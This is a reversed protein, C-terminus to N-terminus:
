KGGAPKEVYSIFVSGGSAFLNTSDNMGYYYHEGTEFNYLLTNYRDYGVIVAPTGDPNRAIVARDESIQYLVEELTCGTLNMVDGSEGLGDKLAQEDMTGSLFVAPIDENILENETQNNGREWIYQQRTNLVVGVQADADMIAQAPSSYIGQLKGKAYVYYMPLNDQKEVTIELTHDTGTELIKSRSILPQRNSIVEPMVLTVVMGRRTTNSARSIVTNEGDKQNNMINDNTTQEYGNETRIVRCLEILGEQIHIEYVWIGDNKYEKILNGDMDEIVISSMAFTTNGAVDTSIDGDAAIGYIFDTNVFGLAQIKNGEGAAIKRMSGTELDMVSVTASGNRVMEGMWAIQSQDDSVLFCDPNIRTLVIDYTKETLSVRYVMQELYLYLSGSRNVYSLKNLDEQLYEFSSSCPLFLQEEVTNRESSFHLVSVGVKGEHIDKNMYGYVVFDIDGSEEVRVIKIGRDSFNDRNEGKGSGLMSYVQVLKDANSNYSWLEGAQEFAVITNSDNALFEMDKDAVGVEIGKTTISAPTATYIQQTNREFDLLMIRSQYYRMRFFDTVYYFEADGNDDKATIMYKLVVSGTTENIEKITAVAKRYISPSLEGWSIQELSSTIDINTFNTNVAYDSPELYLNLNSAAEKNMCLEYFDYAFELYQQTNLSSRQVVRTYYNVDQKPLHVTFKLGYEQNMLIPQQLSFTATQYEGDEKFNGVKANEVVTGDQLNTVEYTVSTIKNGYDQYSVSIQRDTTLPVLGDRLSNQNMEQTYGYMQNIKYGDYEICLIPLTPDAGERTSETSQQNLLQSFGFVGGVFIVFLIAIRLIVKKM